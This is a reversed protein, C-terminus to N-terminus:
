SSNLRTSKRDKTMFDAFIARLRRNEVHLERSLLIAPIAPISPILKLQATVIARLRDVPDVPGREIAHWRQQFKEGIRAAIAEWLDKKKPFHRFLAAQTL